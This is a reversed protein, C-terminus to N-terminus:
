VPHAQGLQRLGGGPITSRSGAARHPRVTRFRAATV